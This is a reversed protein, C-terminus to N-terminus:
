ALVGCAAHTSLCTSPMHSHSQVNAHLCAISVKSLFICWGCESCRILAFVSGPLVTLSLSNCAEGVAGVGAIVLFIVLQTASIRLRAGYKCAFWAHLLLSLIWTGRKIAGLMLFSSFCFSYNLLKATLLEGISFCFYVVSALVIALASGLAMGSQKLKGEIESGPLNHDLDSHPNNKCPSHLPSSSYLCTATDQSSALATDQPQSRFSADCKENLSADEKAMRRTLYPSIGFLGLLVIGACIMLVRVNEDGKAKSSQHVTGAESAAVHESAADSLVAELRGIESRLAAGEATGAEGAAGHEAAADSLAAKLRGIESRLAAGEATGADSLADQVRKIASRTARPRKLAELGRKLPDQEVLM